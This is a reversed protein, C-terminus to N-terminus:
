SQPPADKVELSPQPTSYNNFEDFAKRMKEYDIPITRDVLDDYFPDRWPPLQSLPSGELRKQAEELTM